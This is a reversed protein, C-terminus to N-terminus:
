GLSRRSAKRIAAPGFRAPPLRAPSRIADFLLQGGNEGIHGAVRAQDSHIFVASESGQLHYLGLQDIRLDGVMVSPQELCRALVGSSRERKSIVSLQNGAPLGLFIAAALYNPLNNTILV